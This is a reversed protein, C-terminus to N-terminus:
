EPFVCRAPQKKDRTIQEAMTICTQQSANGANVVIRLTDSHVVYAKVPQGALARLLAPDIHRSCGSTIRCQACNAAIARIVNLNEDQCKQESTWPRNVFVLESRDPLGVNVQPYYRAKNVWLMALVSLSFIGLAAILYIRYRNM